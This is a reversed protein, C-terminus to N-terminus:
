DHSPVTGRVFFLTTYSSTDPRDQFSLFAEVFQDALGEDGMIRAIHPRAATLQEVWNRRREPDIQGVNTFLRDPEFHVALDTLGAQAFLSAMKRGIFPDVLESFVREADGQVMPDEPWHTVAFGDFSSCIVSGGPATVRRLEAVAPAPDKLWQLVYKSWVLDFAGDRFPLHFIDGQEFRLNDLREGRARERAYAVYDSRLDVGVVRADPHIAAMLRAMSGSGCGVDLISTLRPLGSLRALHEELGALTAQRELRDCEGDSHIAYPRSQGNM